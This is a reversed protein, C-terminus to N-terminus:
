YRLGPAWWQQFRFGTALTVQIALWVMYPSIKFKEFVVYFNFTLLDRVFYLVNLPAIITYYQGLFLFYYTIKEGAYNKIMNFPQQWAFTCMSLWDASIDVINFDHIPYYDLIFKGKLLEEFSLAVGRDALKNTKLIESLLKIRILKHFPHSMGEMRSYLNQAGHRKIYPAYIYDYPEIKTVEDLHPIEFSDVFAEEDGDLAAEQAKEGDLLLKYGSVEAQHKVLKTATRILVFIKSTDASYFMYVYKSGVIAVIKDLIESGVFLLKNTSPDVPFELCVDYKDIDTPPDDFVTLSESM